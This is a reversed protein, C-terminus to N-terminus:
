TTDKYVIGIDKYISKIDDMTKGEELELGLADLVDQWASKDVYIANEFNCDCQESGDAKEWIPSQCKYCHRVRGM